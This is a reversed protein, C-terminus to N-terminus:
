YICVKSLSLFCFYLMEMELWIGHEFQLRKFYNIVNSLSLHYWFSDIHSMNEHHLTTMCFKKFPLFISYVKGFSPPVPAEMMIIPYLLRHTM